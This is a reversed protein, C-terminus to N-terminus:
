ARFRLKEVSYAAVQRQANAVGTEDTQQKWLAEVFDITPLNVTPVADYVDPLM